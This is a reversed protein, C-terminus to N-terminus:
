LLLARARVKEKQVNTDAPKEESNVPPKDPLNTQGLSPKMEIPMKRAEKRSAVLLKGAALDKPRTSQAPLLAALLLLVAGARMRPNDCMQAYKSQTAVTSDIDVGEHSLVVTVDVQDKIKDILKQTVDSPSLVKLGHLNKTNTVSFLEPTMLGIVGIRLGGKNLIVYEKNNFPLNGSSDTLNASVTPFHVIGTHQRLNDQSIDLDHNGITWADYGVKNMMEFLAGGTSGQFDIESIPSGTMVDGGDLMLIEGKAKRISDVM